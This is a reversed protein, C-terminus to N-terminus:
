RFAAGAYVPVLLTSTIMGFVIFLQVSALACSLVIIARATQDAVFRLAATAILYINLAFLCAKGGSPLLQLFALQASFCLLIAATTPSSYGAKRLNQFAFLAIAVLSFVFLAENRPVYPRFSAITCLATLSLLSLGIAYNPSIKQASIVTRNGAANTREDWTGDKGM